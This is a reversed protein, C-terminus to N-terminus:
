FRTNEIMIACHICFTLNIGSFSAFQGIHCGNKQCMTWLRRLLTGPLRKRNEYKHSNFLNFDGTMYFIYFIDRISQLTQEYITYYCQQNFRAPVHEDYLRWVFKVFSHLWGHVLEVCAVDLVDCNHSMVAGTLGRQCLSQQVGSTCRVTKALDSVARGNAVKIRLLDAALTGKGGCECAKSVLFVPDIQEIGGTHEIECGFLEGADGSRIGHEDGNRCLGTYTDAGLLCISGCLLHAFGRHKGDGLDVILIRIEIIDQCLELGHETRGNARDNHRDNDLALDRAKDIEDFHLRVLVALVALRVLDGHRLLDGGLM